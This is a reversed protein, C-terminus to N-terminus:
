RARLVDKLEVVGQLVRNLVPNKGPPPLQESLYSDIVHANVRPVDFVSDNSSAPPHRWICDWIGQAAGSVRSWTAGPLNWLFAWVNWPANVVVSPDFPPLNPPAPRKLTRFDGLRLEEVMLILSDQRTLMIIPIGTRRVDAYDTPSALGHIGTRGALTRQNTALHKALGEAFFNGQSHAVVIYYHEPQGPTGRGSSRDISVMDHVIERVLPSDAALKTGGLLASSPISQRLSELFDGPTGNLLTMDRKICDLTHGAFGCGPLTVRRNHM